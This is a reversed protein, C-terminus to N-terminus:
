DVLMVYKIVFFVCLLASNEVISTCVDFYNFHVYHLSGLMVLIIASILFLLLEIYICYFNHYGSGGPGFPQWIDYNEPNYWICMKTYGAVEHISRVSYNSV